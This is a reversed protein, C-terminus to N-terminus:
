SASADGCLLQLIALGMVNVGLASSHSHIVDNGHTRTSITTEYMGAGAVVLRHPLPVVGSM